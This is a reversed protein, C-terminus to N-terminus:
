EFTFDVILAHHDSGRVPEVQTAIPTVGSGFIHDIRLMRPWGPRWGWTPEPKAGVEEAATMALDDFRHALRRYLPWIPSANMDGAIVLADAEQREAWTLLAEVQDRRERVSRWWPFQIPNPMHVGASVLTKGDVTLRVQTGSRWPLDISGCEAEHKSAVGRGEFEESPFLFHHNFRDALVGAAGETMEQLFVLDPDVRDVLDGLYATDVADELVNATM